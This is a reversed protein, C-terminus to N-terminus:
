LIKRYDYIPSYEGPFRYELIKKIVKCKEFEENEEFLGLMRQMASLAIQPNELKDFDELPCKSIADYGKECYVEFLKRNTKLLTDLEEPDIKNEFKKRKM